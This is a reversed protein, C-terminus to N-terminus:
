HVSPAYPSVSRRARNSSFGQGNYSYLKKKGNEEDFGRRMFSIICSILNRWAGLTPRQRNAEWEVAAQTMCEAFTEWYGPEFGRGQMAVHRKGLNEFYVELKGPYDLNRIVFDLTKTYVLAHQRFRPDYKLRGTPIKELGFIAKIDPQATLVMFFIKSGIHDAGTKRTKRWSQELLIRERRTLFHKCKSKAGASNAMSTAEEENPECVSLKRMEPLDDEANVDCSSVTLRLPASEEDMKQPASRDTASGSSVKKTKPREVKYRKEALSQHPCKSNEQGMIKKVLLVISHTRFGNM